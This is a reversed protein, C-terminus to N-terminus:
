SIPSPRRSVEAEYAKMSQSMVRAFLEKYWGPRSPRTAANREELFDPGRDEGGAAPPTGLLTALSSSSIGGLLSRKGCLGCLCGGLPRHSPGGADGKDQMPHSPPGSSCFRLCFPAVPPAASSRHAAPGSGLRLRGRGERRGAITSIRRSNCLLLPSGSATAM